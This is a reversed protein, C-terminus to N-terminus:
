GFGGLYSYSYLFSILFIVGFLLIMFLGKGKGLSFGKKDDTSYKKLHQLFRFDATQRLVDPTIDKYDGTQMGFVPNFPALTERIETGIPTIGIEAYDNDKALDKKVEFGCPRLKDWKLLYMIKNGGFMGSGKVIIPRYQDIIFEKDGIPDDYKVTAKGNYIEIDKEEATWDTHFILAKEKIAKGKEVKIKKESSKQSKQSASESTKEKTPLIGFKRM